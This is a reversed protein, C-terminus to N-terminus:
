RYAITVSANTGPALTILQVPAYEKGSTAPNPTSTVRYEGPPVETFEFSGDPKVQASGSWSGLRTGEKPEVNVLITAGEYKGLANGHKDQVAIFIRGAPTMRLVINTTPTAYVSSVDGFYYGPAHARLQTFGAPLATLEFRGADDTTAERTETSNYGRGDIAMVNSARVKIGKLPQAKTDTVTGQVSTAQALDINFQKFAREGFQHYGLLRSAYGDATVSVRYTGAPIKEAQARGATDTTVEAIKEYDTQPNQGGQVMRAVILRASRVPKGTAMDFVDARVVTGSNTDIGSAIAREDRVRINAPVKTKAWDIEGGDRLYVDLRPADVPRRFNPHDAMFFSKPNNYLLHWREPNWVTFTWDVRADSDPKDKDKLFTNEHPGDHVVLELSSARIRAFAALTQNLLESNGRYLFQWEGGGFPPGEWWGIRAKLNAVDLAGDPWGADRVPDNGRGVMILGSVTLPALLAGCLTLRLFGILNRANMIRLQVRNMLSHERGITRGAQSVM